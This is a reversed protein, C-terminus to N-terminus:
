RVIMVSGRYDFLEGSDCETQLQYVYSGTPLPEGNLNGDWCNNRDGISINKREFIVKGWRNYIIISRISKIGSGNIVFRDNLNDNNPSFATPIFVLQNNCVLRLTVDDKAKCGDDNFATLTYTIASTPKSVPNLCTICDLYTVPSWAWNIAGSIVPLLTIPTGGILEKDAGANVLPLKSLRVFIDATDTFCNYNDYGVVTYTVSSKLLAVPNAINVNSIGETVKIWKYIDAGSTNLQVPSGECAFMAGPVTLNVPTIVKVFVSDISSCGITTDTVKVRYFLGTAPSVTASFNNANLLAGVSSWQYINDGSATLITSSGQCVFPTAPTIAIIPHANVKLSHYATDFCNGNNVILTIQKIGISSFQQPAPNQVIASAGNNFTWKWQLLGNAPTANGAFSTIDNQCLKNVGTIAAQVGQKVSVPKSINQQCGYMSSVTLRVGHEGIKTFFHSATANYSTDAVAAENTIWRYMLPSQLLANSLSNVQPSFLALASDCIFNPTVTFSAGLSDIIVKQPLESTASCGGADKLILAPTYVGPTLYQHIAFTDKTPVVTGDGFDWTYDTANKVEATLTVQLSKCAYLTDAKLLAYPGKVEIFDETSDVGINSDYSYHVVRYLGPKNYTHSVVKQNGAIGGDGFDWAVRAANTSISTFTAIVPPCSNNNIYSLQYTFASNVKRVIINKIITDPCGTIYNSTILKIPYTGAAPFTVSTNYDDTSFTSDNIQWKASSTYYYYYYFQSTNTLYVTTNPPVTFSSASFDAKPGSVTVNNNYYRTSNFCGDADTVKLIVYYTGPTSYFHAVSGSATLTQFKGDGFNWEWSAIKSTGFYTSTDTFRVAEKFCGSHPEQKFGAKPGHIKMPIFNSTDTCGFFVSTTMMRLGTKGPDLQELTGVIEQDWYYNPSSLIANCATSDNYEKYNINYGNNYYLYYPYPNKEYNYLKFDVSASGCADSKTSSLLPKQKLLVYATTSDKVTCGANTASLVVKHAKTANFTHRITDKFTSYTDTGGDGFDWSWKLAKKSDETIRVDGRTGDCTNFVQQIHPFPPLVKLYNIKTVTDICNRNAAILQVTYTTDHSFQYVVSSSPSYNYYEENFKWFYNWGSAAPTATFTTPTNGCITQNATFDFVPKDVVTVYNYNTSGICGNKTVYSLTVFFNGAINFDHTPTPETSIPTNDGFDWKYTAISTDPYAAFTIKLPKCGQNVSSNNLTININPKAYNVYKGVTSSCGAANTTTLYVNEYDGSTYTFSANKTSAFTTSNTYYNQWQWSVADTSTDKYNITVPVGCAGQLDAIFGSLKPLDYVTVTKSLTDACNGYYVILKMIHQGSVNFYTTLSGDGYGSYGYLTNDIYWEARDFPRTSKNNFGAQQNLCIKAPIDFDAVFNAVNIAASQVTSSCGDSSTTTLKPVYTGSTAYVHVPSKETSTKSDGFDWAYTLTGSGTSNNNFTVSEGANCLTFTSPTFAAQVAIVVEVLGSKSITTYCGFSNTVNLTIPPTQPLTYIHTTSSYNIGQVNTGDGFDWLYNAISGDGATANATYNVTLPVCGKAPSVTFDITPKKYVTVDITKTSTATGDKVTLSISYTKETFYTAGADKLVSSNGNGFNWAWTAAASAGTTTNTFKVSLPSCGGTKDVTFNAQLQATANIGCCCCLLVTFFTYPFRSIIQKM